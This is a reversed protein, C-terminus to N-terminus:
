ISSFSRSACIGNKKRKKKKKLAYWLKFIMRWHQNPINFHALSPHGKFFRVHGLAKPKQKRHNM